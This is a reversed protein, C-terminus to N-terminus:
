IDGMTNIIKLYQDFNSTENIMSSLIYYENHSFIERIWMEESHSIVVHNTSCALYSSHFVPIFINSKLENTDTYLAYRYKSLNSEDELLSLLEVLRQDYLIDNTLKQQFIAINIPYNKLSNILQM